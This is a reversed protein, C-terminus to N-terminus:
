EDKIKRIKRMKEAIEFVMENTIVDFNEITENNKMALILNSKITMM